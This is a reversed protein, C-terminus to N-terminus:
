RFSHWCAHRDGDDDMSSLWVLLMSYLTGGAEAINELMSSDLVWLILETEGQQDGCARFLDLCEQAGCDGRYIKLCFYFIGM